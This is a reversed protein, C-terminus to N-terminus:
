EPPEARLAEDVKREVTAPSDVVSRIGLATLIIGVLPLLSTLLVQWEDSIDDTWGFARALLPVAATIVGGIIGLIAAPERRM